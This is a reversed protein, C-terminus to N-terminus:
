ENSKSGYLKSFYGAGERDYTGDQTHIKCIQDKHVRYYCLYSQMYALKFGHHALKLWMDLDQTSIEANWGGVAKICPRRITVTGNPIFPRKRLKEVDTGEGVNKSGYQRLDKLLRNEEDVLISHGYTWDVEPHAALYDHRFQLSSLPLFDDDDLPVVLDGTSEAYGVNLADAAGLNRPNFVYKIRPDKLAFERVIAATDDTSCNDVIIHEHDFGDQKQNQVSELNQRLFASRNHTPTIISILTPMSSSKTDRAVSEPYVPPLAVEGWDEILDM